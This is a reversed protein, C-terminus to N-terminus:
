IETRCDSREDRVLSGSHLTGDLARHRWALTSDYLAADTDVTSLLVGTEHRELQGTIVGDARVFLSGWCSERASSNPCSIWVHSSAAAAIMAAPMTIEPYTAGRSFAHHAEGVEAKM